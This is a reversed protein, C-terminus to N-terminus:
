GSSTFRCLNWTANRRKRQKIPANGRNRKPSASLSGKCGSCTDASRAPSKPSSRGRARTPAASACSATSCSRTRRRPSPAPNEFGAERLGMLGQPFVVEAAIATLYANTEDDYADDSLANAGRALKEFEARHTQEDGALSLLLEVAEPSRSVKAARRYFSEGRREMEMAIRIGELDSFVHFM